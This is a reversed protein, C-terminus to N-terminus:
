PALQVCVHYSDIAGDTLAMSYKNESSESTTQLQNGFTKKITTYYNDCAISLGCTM